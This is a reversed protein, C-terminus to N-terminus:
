RDLSPSLLQGLAGALGELNPGFLSVIKGHSDVLVTQPYLVIGLANLRPNDNVGESYQAFAHLWPMPWKLQRFRTVKEPTEDAAISLIELGRNHYLNYIRHLEPMASVCPGCWTGWFDVLTVKGAISSNTIRSTTDPLAPFDFAPVQAGERLPRNPAYRSALLKSFPYSPTEALMENLLSQARATDADVFALRVLQSQAENRTEPEDISEIMTELYARMQRRTTESKIESLSAAIGSNFLVQTGGFAILYSDSIWWKSRAPLSSRLFARTVSDVTLETWFAFSLLTYAARERESGSRASRMRHKLDTVVNARYSRARTSDRGTNERMMKRYTAASAASALNNSAALGVFTSTDTVQVRVVSDPRPTCAEQTRVTDRDLVALQVAVRLTDHQGFPATVFQSAYGRACVKVAYLKLATHSFPVALRTRGSQSRVTDVILPTFSAHSILQVVAESLPRDTTDSVKIEVVQAGAVRAIITLAVVAIIRWLQQTRIM